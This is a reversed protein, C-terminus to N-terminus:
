QSHAVVAPVPDVTQIYAYFIACINDPIIDLFAITNLETIKNKSARILSTNVQVTLIM